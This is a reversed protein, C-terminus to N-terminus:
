SSLVHPKTRNLRVGSPAMDLAGCFFLVRTRFKEFNPLGRATAKVLQIVSNHAESAANTIRHDFYNLLGEMHRKVLRALAKVPELRTRIASAYWRKLYSEAAGRYLYSWFRSLAEKQKWARSTRLDASRLERITAAEAKRLDQYNRLWKYKTGKLTSDGRSALIRAEQRRVKDVAEAAHKAVHFKDHVIAANPLKTKASNMYAPWMDMAAAEIGSRQDESFTEWAREADDQTRGQVVEWVRSRDLDCVITAYRHGPSIAKEDIGAHKVPENKRRELGRKVARKMVGNVQDWTLNMLQAAAKVNKTAGLVSIVFAEMYKTLRSYREAWPVAVEKTSGDQLKVRPVRARIITEFQCTDLHRWERSSWGHIHARGGDEPDVWLTKGACEVDVVVRREEAQLDVGTVKWPHKLGLLEQYLDIDRM